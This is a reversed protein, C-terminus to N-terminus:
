KISHYTMSTMNDITYNERTSNYTSINLVITFHWDFYGVCKQKSTEFCKNNEFLNFYM